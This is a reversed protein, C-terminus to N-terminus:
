SICTTFEMGLGDKLHLNTYFNRQNGYKKRTEIVIKDYVHVKCYGIIDCILHCM